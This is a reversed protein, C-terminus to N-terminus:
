PPTDPKAVDGSGGGGGEDEPAAREPHQAHRGLGPTVERFPPDAEDGQPRGGRDLLVVPAGVVRPSDAGEVQRASEM